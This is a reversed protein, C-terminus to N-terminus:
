MGQEPVSEGRAALWKWSLDEEESFKDQHFSYLCWIITVWPVVLIGGIWRKLSALYVSAFIEALIPLVLVVTVGMVTVFSWRYPGKSVYRFASRPIIAGLASLYSGGKFEFVDYIFQIRGVMAGLGGILILYYAFVFGNICAGAVILEPTEVRINLGTMTIEPSISIVGLSLLVIAM